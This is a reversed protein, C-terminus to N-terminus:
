GLHYWFLTESQTAVSPLRTCWRASRSLLRKFVLHLNAKEDPTLSQGRGIFIGEVWIHKTHACLSWWIVALYMLARGVLFLCVPNRVDVHSSDVNQSFFHGFVWGSINISSTWMQIFLLKVYLLNIIMNKNTHVVIFNYPLWDCIVM